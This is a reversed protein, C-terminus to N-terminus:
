KEASYRRLVPIVDFGLKKESIRCLYLITYVVSIITVAVKPSPLVTEPLGFAAVGCAGGVSSGRKALM